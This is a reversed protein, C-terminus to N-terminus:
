VLGPLQLRPDRHRRRSSWCAVTNLLLEKSRSSRLCLRPDDTPLLTNSSEYGLLASRRCSLRPIFETSRFILGIRVQRM